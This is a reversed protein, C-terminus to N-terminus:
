YDYQLSMDGSGHEYKIWVSLEVHKVKVNINQLLAIGQVWGIGLTLFQAQCKM